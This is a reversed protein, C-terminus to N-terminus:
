EKEASSQEAEKERLQILFVAVMQAIRVLVDIQERTWSVNENCEDFGIFGFFEDGKRIIYQLMSKIGQPELIERQWEPTDEAYRLYFIGDLDFNDEYPDEGNKGRIPIDQLSDIEASIGDSCWEFTNYMLDNRIEFIYVRSVDLWEGVHALAKNIGEYTRESNYLISFVDGALTHPWIAEGMSQTDANNQSRLESMSPIPSGTEEKEYIVYQNKGRHKARYLAFDAKKYLATYDHYIDSDIMAVGVSVHAAGLQPVEIKSFLDLIGEAKREVVERSLIGPVFVLFEDGGIRGLIDEDRFAKRMAASVERLFSDGFLHGLTENIHKFDDIDIVFLAGQQKDELRSGIISKTANQNYFGTLSDRNVQHQLKKEEEIDDVRGILRNVEGNADTLSVFSARCWTFVKDFYQARYEVTSSTPEHLARSLVTIYAERDDPHVREFRQEAIYNEIAVEEITGEKDSLGYLMRDEDADYDFLIAKGVGTMVYHQVARWREVSDDTLVSLEREVEHLRIESRRQETVDEVIAFLMHKDNQSALYHNNARIWRLGAGGLAATRIVVTADGDRVAENMGDIIEQRDEEIFLELMHTRHEDIVERPLGVSNFFAENTLLAEFNEGNFELLCGGGICNNFLYSTAGNTALFENAGLIDGVPPHFDIGGTKSDKLLQIFADQPMPRAFYYGQMIYCGLNKLYEAQDVTEVGEAIVPLGIWYAMRIISSLISGGRQDNTDDTALFRMDLKLVDVPVDKLINLSSYGSGFDDMEVSFGRNRLDEVVEILQQSDSIYASETIELKLLSRDLNYKEVLSTIYGGLDPMYIDVRSINVSIPVPEPIIQEDIMRRVFRCAEEWVFMDLQTILGAKELLPIFEAPSVSGLEPHEWRVLAEASVIQNSTYNYQPQMVVFFENNKLGDELHQSIELERLQKQRMSDDYLALKSGTLVKVSKQAINAKNMMDNIDPTRVDEEDLIYVGSVLEPKFDQDKLGPYTKLLAGMENFRDELVEHSEYVTLAAINDASIRCFVEGAALSESLLNTWYKLFKDGMDYGFMDNIYKFRRIDSYWFAYKKDTNEAIIEDAAHKFGEFNLFGTLTDSYRLQNAYEEMEYLHFTHAIAKTIMDVIFAEGRHTTINALCFLGKLSGGLMIPWAQLSKMKKEEFFNRLPEAIDPASTDPLLMHMRGNLSTSWSKLAESSPNSFVPPVAIPGEETWSAQHEKPGFLTIFGGSAGFFEASVEIISSIARGISEEESLTIVCETWLRMGGLTESLISAKRKPDTIDQAFDLRVYEEGLNVVKVRHLYDKDLLDIHDQWVRYRDSHLQHKEESYESPDIGYLVESYTKGEYGQAAREFVPGSKGTILRIIRGTSLDSFCIYDNENEFGYPENGFAAYRSATEAIAKETESMERNDDVSDLSFSKGAEFDASRVFCGILGEKLYFCDLKLFRGTTDANYYLLEKGKTAQLRKFIDIWETDTGDSESVIRRGTIEDQDMGWFRSARPNAYEVVLDVLKDDKYESGLFILGVPSSDFAKKLGVYDLM